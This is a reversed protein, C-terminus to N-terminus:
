IHKAWRQTCWLRYSACGYWSTKLDITHKQTTRSFLIQVLGHLSSSGALAIFSLLSMGTSRSCLRWRMNDCATISLASLLLVTVQSLLNITFITKQPDNWMIRRLPSSSLSANWAYIVTSVNVTVSLAALIWSSYNRHFRQNSKLEIRSPVARRVRFLRSFSQEFPRNSMSSLHISPVAASTPNVTDSQSEMGKSINSTNRHTTKRLGSVTRALPTSTEYDPSCNLVGSTM